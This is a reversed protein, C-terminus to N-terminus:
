RVAGTDRKWAQEAMWHLRAARSRAKRARKAARRADFEALMKQWSADIAADSLRVAEATEPLVWLSVM